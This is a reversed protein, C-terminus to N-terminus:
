APRPTVGAPWGDAPAIQVIPILSSRPAPLVPDPGMGASVPVRAAGGCGSCVIGTTTVLLAISRAKAFLM